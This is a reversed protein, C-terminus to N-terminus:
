GSRDKRVRALLREYEPKDLDPPLREPSLSRRFPKRLKKEEQVPVLCVGVLVFVGALLYREPYAVFWRAFAAFAGRFSADTNPPWHSSDLMVHRGSLYSTIFHQNAGANWESNTFFYPEGIVVVSGSGFAYVCVLPYPGSQGAAAKSSLAYSEPSSYALVAVGTSELTLKSPSQLDLFRASGSINAGGSGPFVQNASLIAEVKNSAGWNFLPDFVTDNAIQVPVGLSSLLSNADLSDGNASILLLGGSSVFRSIEAVQPQSFTVTPQLELLANGAGTAPLSYLSSLSTVGFSNYFGRLGNWGYNDPSLPVDDPAAYALAVFVLFGLIVAVAILRLTNSRGTV